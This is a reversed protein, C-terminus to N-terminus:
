KHPERNSETQGGQFMPKTVGPGWEDQKGSYIGWYRTGLLGEAFAQHIATTARILFVQKGSGSPHFAFEETRCKLDALDLQSSERQQLKRRIHERSLSRHM